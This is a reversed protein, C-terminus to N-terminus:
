VEWPLENYKGVVQHIRQRSLGYLDGITQYTLGMEKLQFMVEQRIIRYTKCREKLRSIIEQHNNM